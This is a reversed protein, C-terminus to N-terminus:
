EEIRTLTNIEGSNWKSYGSHSCIGVKTQIDSKDRIVNKQFVSQIRDDMRKGEAMPVGADVRVEGDPTELFIRYGMTDSNSHSPPGYTFSKKALYRGVIPRYAKGTKGSLGRCTNELEVISSSHNAKEAKCSAIPLVALAVALIIIMRASNM